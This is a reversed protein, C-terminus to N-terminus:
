RDKRHSDEATIVLREQAEQGSSDVLYFNKFHRGDPLRGGEERWSNYERDMKPKSFMPDSTLLMELEKSSISPVQAAGASRLILQSRCSGWAM